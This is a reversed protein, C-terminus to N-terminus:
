GSLFGAVGHSDSLGFGQDIEPNFWFEAGGWLRLGMYLTADWTERAQSPVLSNPGVYPSRFPPAYQQVYTTQGHIAWNSLDFQKDTQSQSDSVNGLKYNLGLELTDLLLDSGYHQGAPAFFVGSNPFDYFRYELKASL